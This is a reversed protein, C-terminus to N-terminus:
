RGTLGLSAWYARCFADIQQAVSGPAHEDAGAEAFLPAFSAVAREVAPYWREVWGRIVDANEPADELCLRVLHGTWECHWACDQNLSAVGRARRRLARRGRQGLRASDAQGARRRGDTRRVV